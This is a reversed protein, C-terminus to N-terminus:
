PTVSSNRLVWHLSVRDGAALDAASFTGASNTGTLILVSWTGNANQTPVGTNCLGDLSPTSKNVTATCSVSGLFPDRTTATIQGTNTDALSLYSGTASAAKDGEVFVPAGSVIAITCDYHVHRVGQTEPKHFSRDAM